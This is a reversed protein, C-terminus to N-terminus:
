VVRPMFPQGRRKSSDPRASKPFFRLSISSSWRPSSKRAIVNTTLRRGVGKLARVSRDSNLGIAFADGLARAAKLCRVHGVHLLDFCGNTVVLKKGANRFERAREALENMDIIKTNM